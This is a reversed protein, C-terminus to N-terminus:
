LLCENAQDLEDDEFEKLYARTTSELSHSLGQSIKAMPVGKRYWNTACTHRGVYTTPNADVEALRAIERMENNMKKRAKAIKDHIQLPSIHVLRNLIPFIYHNPHTGTFPRYYEITAQAPPLLKFNIMKGTKARTYFIRGQVLDKWQLQAIDIFNIGRGYYIFMFIRRSEALSSAPDLELNEIKKLEAETLARKKTSLNFKTVRFEKFPYYNIDVLKEKIAKNFLARLTRFYVAMSTEALGLKRLFLEYNHLFTQDIDTFLLNASTTFLKLSRKTDKYGRASGVKGVQLLRDIVLDFFSFVASAAKKGKDAELAQILVDPTVVVQQSILELYKARYTHITQAIITEIVEKHPNHRKPANKKLDWLELSCSIGLSIYKRVKGQSIRLMLPHEGNALTNSKYLIVTIKM